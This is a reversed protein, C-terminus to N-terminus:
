VARAPQNLASPCKGFIQLLFQLEEDESAVAEMQELAVPYM